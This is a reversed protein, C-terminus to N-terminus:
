EESCLCPPECSLFHQPSHLVAQLEPCSDAWPPPWGKWGLAARQAVSGEVSPPAQTCRKLDQCLSDVVRGKTAWLTRRRQFSAPLRSCQQGSGSAPSPGLQCVAQCTPLCVPLYLPLSPHSSASETHGSPGATEPSFSPLLLKM